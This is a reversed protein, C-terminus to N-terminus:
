PKSTLACNGFKNKIWSMDGSFMIYESIISKGNEPIYLTYLYENGPNGPNAYTIIYSTTKKEKFSDGRDSFTQPFSHAYLIYPTRVYERVKSYKKRAQNEDVDGKSKSYEIMGDIGHPTIGSKEIYKITKKDLDVVYNRFDKYFTVETENDCHINRDWPIKSIGFTSEPFGSCSAENPKGGKFKEQIFECKFSISYSTSPFLLFILIIFKTLLKKM